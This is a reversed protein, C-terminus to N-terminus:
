AVHPRACPQAPAETPPAKVGKRPTARGPYGPPRRGHSKPAIESGLRHFQELQDGWWEGPPAGRHGRRARDVSARGAGRASAEVRVPDLALVEHHEHVRAERARPLRLEVPRRAPLRHRDLEQVLVDEAVVPPQVRPRERRPDVVVVLPQDDPPQERRPRRPCPLPPALLPRQDPRREPLQRRLARQPHQPPEPLQPHVVPPRARHDPPVERPPRIRREVRHLVAGVDARERRVRVQRQGPLRAREQELRAPPRRELRRDELPHPLGAVRLPRDELQRLRDRLPVRRAAPDLLLLEERPDRRLHGLPLPQPRLARGPPM